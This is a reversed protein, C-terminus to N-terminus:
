DKVPVLWVLTRAIEGFYKISEQSKVETLGVEEVQTAKKGM